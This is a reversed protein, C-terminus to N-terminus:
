SASEQPIDGDQALLEDEEEDDDDLEIETEEARGVDGELLDAAKEALEDEAAAMKTDLNSEDLRQGAADLGAKMGDLASGYLLNAEELGEALHELEKVHAEERPALKVDADDDTPQNTPSTM